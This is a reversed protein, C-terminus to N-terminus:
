PETRELRYVDTRRQLLLPLQRRIEDVRDLDLSTIAVSEKEDAQM